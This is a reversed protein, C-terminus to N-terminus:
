KNCFKLLHPQWRRAAEETSALVTLIIYFHQQADLREQPQGVIGSLQAYALENEVNRGAHVALSVPFFNSCSLVSRSLRKRM